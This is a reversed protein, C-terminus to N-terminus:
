FSFARRRTWYHWAYEPVWLCILMNVLAQWQDMDPALRIWNVGYL